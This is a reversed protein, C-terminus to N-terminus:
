FAPLLETGLVYVGEKGVQDTGEYYLPWHFTRVAPAVQCEWLVFHSSPSLGLGLQGGDQRGSLTRAPPIGSSKSAPKPEKVEWLAGACVKWKWLHRSHSYLVPTPRRVTMRTRLTLAKRVEGGCGGVCVGAENCFSLCCLTTLCFAVPRPIQVGPDGDQIQLTPGMRVKRYAETEGDTFFPVHWYWVCPLVKPFVMPSWPLHRFVVYVPVCVTSYYAFHKLILM